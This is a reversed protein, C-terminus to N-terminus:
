ALKERKMMSWVNLVSRWENRARKLDIPKGERYTGDENLEVILGRRVEIGEFSLADAYGGLQWQDWPSASGKWDVLHLLGNMRCLLDLTGAYPIPTDRWVRHEVAEAVPKRAAMWERCAKVQGEIQQDHVFSVGQCIMAACAHVARGREMHWDTAGQYQVHIVSKIIQTVSPFVTGDKRYEHSGEDLHMM